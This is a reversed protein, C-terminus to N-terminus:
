EMAKMVVITVDDDRPRGGAFSELAWLASAVIM